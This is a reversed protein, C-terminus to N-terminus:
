GCGTFYVQSATYWFLNLRELIVKKKKMWYTNILNRNYTQWASSRTRPYLSLIVQCPDWGWLAINDHHNGLIKLGPRLSFFHYCKYQLLSILGHVLLQDMRSGREASHGPALTDFPGCMQDRRFVHTYGRGYSSSQLLSYFYISISNCLPSRLGM